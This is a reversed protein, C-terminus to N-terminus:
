GSERREAPNCPRNSDAPEEPLHELQPRASKAEDKSALRSVPQEIKGSVAILPAEKLPGKKIHPKVFFNMEGSRLSVSGVARMRTITTDLRMDETVAQDGRLDFEGGLCNVHTTAGEEPLALVFKLFGKSWREVQDIPVDAPGASVQATGKLQARLEELDNGSTKFHADVDAYGAEAEGQTPADLWRELDVHRATLKGVITVGSKIRTADLDANVTGSGWRGDEILLRYGDDTESVQGRFRLEGLVVRHWRGLDARGDFDIKAGRLERPHEVEGEFDVQRAGDRLAGQVHWPRDARFVSWSSGSVHALPPDNEDRPYVSLQMARGAPLAADVRRISRELGKGCVGGGCRVELGRITLRDINTVSDIAALARRWDCASDPQWTVCLRADRMDLRAISWDDRLMAWVNLRIRVDRAVLAENKADGQRDAVHMERIIVWPRLSPRVFVPGRVSVDFGLLRSLPREIRADVNHLEFSPGSLTFAAVVSLVVISTLIGWRVARRAFLGKNSSGM